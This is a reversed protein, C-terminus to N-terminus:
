PSGPLYAERFMAQWSWLQSSDWGSSLTLSDPFICLYLIGTGFGFDLIELISVRVYFGLPFDWM